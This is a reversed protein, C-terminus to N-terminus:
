NQPPLRDGVQFVEDYRCPTISLSRLEDILSPTTWLKTEAERTLITKNIDLASARFARFEDDDHAPHIVHLYVGSPASGVARRPDFVTSLSITRPLGDFESPGFILGEQTAFDYLADKMGPLWSCAMHDDLYTLPLGLKRLRSLQAEAEIIVENLNINQKHLLATSPPMAGREDLLSPVRDHCSLPAWLPNDWECTLAFHLGLAIGSMNRFLDAAQEIAPAVALFGVNRVGGAACAAAIARNTGTTLGTDDARTILHLRRTM